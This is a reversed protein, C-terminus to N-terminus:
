NRYEYYLNWNLSIPAVNHSKCSYCISFMRIKAFSSLKLPIVEIITAIIQLPFTAFIVLALKWQHSFAIISIALILTINEVFVSIREGIAGKITTADNALCTSVSGSNNEIADFWSVENTLIGSPHVYPGIM